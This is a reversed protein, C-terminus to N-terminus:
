EKNFMRFLTLESMELTSFQLQQLCSEFDVSLWICKITVKWKCNRYVVCSNESVKKLRYMLYIMIVIIMTTTIREM